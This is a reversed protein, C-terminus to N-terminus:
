AIEPKKGLYNLQNYHEIIAKGMTKYENYPLSFEQATEKVIKAIKKSPEKTKKLLLHKDKVKKKKKISVKSKSIKKKLTPEINIKEQVIKIQEIM